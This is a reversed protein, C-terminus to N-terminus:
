TGHIPKGFVSMAAERLAESVTPHAHITNVIDEVTGEMSMCLAAAAIIETVRPGIMHVGLIEGLRKDAIVKVMGPAGEIVARANGSLSFCGAAYDIGANKVQEETMGAFAIEPSSYVCAPIIKWNMRPTLGMIHEATAEGQAMAAHALFSKGNCDGVAYLGPINTRFHEDTDAAGGTLKVGIEELGLSATNARRGVAVLLKEANVSRTEGGSEFSISLGNPSPKAGILRAGTYVCVGDAELAARMFEAIEGDVPPLIADAAEIVTIKTGLAGYLAAFEVGIVGGGVVVMSKPVNELSLAATSGIVGPLDSGPFDLEASVSGSALIVADAEHTKDGIRVKRGPLLAAKENYVAVGNHRLLAGVGGALRYVVDNKRNQASPWDLKAGTIKVGQVTNQAARRYFEGIHLLTKTPVCGINLCTGGLSGAEALAVQAGLQAAKLAAAYGGPGGGIVIIKKSMNM